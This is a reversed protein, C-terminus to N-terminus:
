NKQMLKSVLSTRNHVKVKSYISRLHNQVTRISIFLKSSVEPNTMGVSVLHVIDIERRTLNFKTFNDPKILNTDQQKFCVLFCLGQGRTRYAYVYGSINQSYHVTTFNIHQDVRNDHSNSVRQNLEQCCQSIRPPLYNNITRIIEHGSYPPVKLLTRAKDDLFTPFLNRDLIMIGEHHMDVSLAKIIERREVAMESLKIKQIAVSLCPIIANIKSIDKTSFATSASTRHLGILGIPRSGDHLGITMMHYISQPRLFDCYFKTRIYDSHNITEDSIVIRKSGLKLHNLLKITFPDKTQYHDCWAKPAKKPVGYSIGNVFQWGLPTQSVDFYVSSEATVIKQIKLLTHRQLEGITKCSIAVENLSLIDKLD